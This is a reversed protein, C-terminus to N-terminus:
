HLSRRVRIREWLLGDVRMHEVAFYAHKPGRRRFEATWQRRWASLADMLNPHPGTGGDFVTAMLKFDGAEM